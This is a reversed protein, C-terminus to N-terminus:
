SHQQLFSENNILRKLKSNAIVIIKRMLATLAVMKKKGRAILNNYFTKLHSHSKRAAMAALFLSPKILDRGHATHRYGKFKGSENARPALGALSAIQRRNLSGLEPMLALLTLATIEGIGPITLLSNQRVLLAQDSGVLDKMSKTIQDIQDILMKIMSEHSKIVLPFVKPAKARNKEAVLMQKLDRRRQVLEYLAGADISHPNFRALSNSREFGYRSLSKADLKDTKAENGFSRIFNKVKRTHARHVAYNKDCLALLLRMEYGGTPELVCLGNSLGDKFDNLFDDIGSSTNEYEKISKQGHVAVVFNFKGIDIGIFNKYSEM